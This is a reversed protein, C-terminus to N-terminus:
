QEDCLEQGALIRIEGMQACHRKAELEWYDREERTSLLEKETEALQLHLIQRTTNVRIGGTM